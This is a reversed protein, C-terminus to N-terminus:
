RKIRQFIKIIKDNKAILLKDVWLYRKSIYISKIQREVEEIELESNTIDIIFNNSQREKKKINGEIVYKGKGTIEKLDFKENNIMYDPTQIGQPHSVRPIIKVKGGYLKGLLNAIEIERNTPELIVRKGDVKYKNGSGDKYYQKKIIKYESNGNEMAKDTIEEYIVNEKVENKIEDIKGYNEYFKFYNEKYEQYDKVNEFEVINGDVIKTFDKEDEVAWRARELLACRCNVDESAIGFDHPYMAQKGGVEFPEELERIQGDLMAHTLRTRSDMTSDWQKVVDAGNAKARTMAEFKAETQVRGGETRAIRYSKKLDAESNMAIKKSINSYSAGQSIGRTIESKITGKLKDANEYLARSLKFDATQKSISKIVANQNIAMIFPVGEKQM